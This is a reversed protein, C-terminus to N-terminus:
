QMMLVYQEEIDFVINQKTCFLNVLNDLHNM